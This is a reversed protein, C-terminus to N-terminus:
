KFLSVHVFIQAPTKVILFLFFINIRPPRYFQNVHFSVQIRQKTEWFVQFLLGHKKLMVNLGWLTQIKGVDRVEGKTVIGRASKIVDESRGRIGGGM